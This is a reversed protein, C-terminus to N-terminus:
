VVCPPSSATPGSPQDARLALGLFPAAPVREAYDECVELPVPDEHGLRVFCVVAGTEARSHSELLVAVGFDHGNHVWGWFAVHTGTARGTIHGRKGHQVEVVFLIDFIAQQVIHPYFRTTTGLQAKSWM